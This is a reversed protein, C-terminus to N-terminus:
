SDDPMALECYISLQLIKVGALCGAPCKYGIIVCLTGALSANSKCDWMLVLMVRPSCEISKLM